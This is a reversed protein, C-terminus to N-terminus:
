SASRKRVDSGHALTKRTASSRRRGGWGPPHPQAARRSKPARFGDALIEARRKGADREPHAAVYHAVKADDDALDGAGCLVCETRAGSAIEDYVRRLKKGAAKGCEVRTLKPKKQCRWCEAQKGDRTETSSRFCRKRDLMKRCRACQKKPEAASEPEPTPTAAVGVVEVTRMTEGALARLRTAEAGAQAEIADALGAARRRLEDAQGLLVAGAAHRAADLQDSLTKAQTM